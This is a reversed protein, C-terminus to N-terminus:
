IVNVTSWALANANLISSMSSLCECTLKSANAVEEPAKEKFLFYSAFTSCAKDSPAPRAPASSALKDPPKVVVLVDKPVADAGILTAGSSAPIM